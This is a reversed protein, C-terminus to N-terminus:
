IAGHSWTVRNLPASVFFVTIIIFTIIVFVYLCVHATQNCQQCSSYRESEKHVKCCQLILQGPADKVQLVRTAVAHAVAALELVDCLM